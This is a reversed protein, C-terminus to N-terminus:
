QPVSPALAPSARFAVMEQALHSVLRDVSIPLRRRARVLIHASAQDLLTDALVVSGLTGRRLEGSVAFPPLFTLGLGSMVFRRLLDISPTEIRPAVVLCNDAAVRGILHRVGHGLPLLAHPERLADALLVETRRLLSHAPPVIACLPQRAIAVSRVRTDVDPNYALGIDADGESLAALLQDTGGLDIQFQIDPYLGAFGKLGNEVLDAVFGEGCCIRVRAQTIGKLKALQQALIEQAELVQKAHEAVLEGPETLRMGRASREFLRVGLRREIENIQRSIASPATCLYQAAARITGAKVVGLFHRLARADIADLQM